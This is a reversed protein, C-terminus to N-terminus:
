VTEKRKRECRTREKQKEQHLMIGEILAGDGGLEIGQSQSNSERKM